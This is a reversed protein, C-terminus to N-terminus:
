DCYPCSGICASHASYDKIAQCGTFCESRRRQCVNKADQRSQNLQDRSRQSADAAGKLALLRDNAKVAWESAPHNAIIYDYAEKAKAENNERELSGAFIYMGQPGGKTELIAVFEKHKREQEAREREAVINRERAIEANYAAETLYVKENKFYFLPLQTGFEGKVLNPYGVDCRYGTSYFQVPGDFYYPGNGTRRATLELNYFCKGVGDFKFNLAYVDVSRGYPSAREFECSISKVRSRSVPSKLVGGDELVSYPIIKGVCEGTGTARPDNSIDIYDANKSPKAAPVNVPTAASEECQSSVGEHYIFGTTTAGSQSHKFEVKLWDHTGEPNKVQELVKVSTKNALKDVITTDKATPGSRVNTITSKANCVVKTEPEALVASTSLSFVALICAMLLKM